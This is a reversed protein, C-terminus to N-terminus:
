KHCKSQMNRRFTARSLLLYFKQSAGPPGISHDSRIFDKGKSTPHFPRGRTNGGHFLGKQRFIGRALAYALSEFSLYEDQCVWPEAPQMYTSLFVWLWIHIDVRCIKNRVRVCEAPHNTMVGVWLVCFSFELILFSISKLNPILFALSIPSDPLYLHSSGLGIAMTQNGLVWMTSHSLINKCTPKQRRWM